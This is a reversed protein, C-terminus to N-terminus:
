IPKFMSQAGDSHLRAYFEMAYRDTMGAVFDCIIRKAAASGPKETVYQDRVDDPMLLFGRDSALAEFISTVVEEGRFEPLKVRASYIMAEFTYHKLVEVKRRSNIDLATTSLPPYKKNYKLQVGNIAEHVLETSLKTRLHGSQALKESARYGVVLNALPNGQPEIVNKLNSFIELFTELVMQATFNQNLEKSM